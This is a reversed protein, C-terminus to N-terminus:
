DISVNVSDMNARSAKVTLIGDELKAKISSSDIPNPLWVTRTFTSASSWAESNGKQVQKTSDDTKTVQQSSSAENPSTTAQEANPQQQQPIGARRVVKGSLTLSRGGDGVKLELNEKKVGPVEAEVVYSGDEDETLHLSPQSSWILTDFFPHQHQRQHHRRRRDTHGLGAYSPEISFPDDFMRSYDNFLAHVLSM